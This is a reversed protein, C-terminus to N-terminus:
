YGSNKWSRFKTLYVKQDLGEAVDVRRALEELDVHTEFCHGRGWRSWRGYKEFGPEHLSTRVLWQGAKGIVATIRARLQYERVPDM